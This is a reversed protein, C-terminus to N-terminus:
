HGGVFEVGFGGGEGAGDADDPGGEFDGFHHFFDADGGGDDFAIGGGFEFVGAGGEFLEGVFVADVDFAQDVAGVAFEGGDHLGAALAFEGDRNGFDGDSFDPGGVVGFFEAEDVVDGVEVFDALFGGGVGAEGAGGDDAEFVAGAEEFGEGGTGGGGGWLDLDFEVRFGRVVRGCCVRIGRRRGANFHCQRGTLSRGRSLKTGAIKM